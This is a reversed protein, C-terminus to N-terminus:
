NIEVFLNYESFLYLNCKLSLFCLKGIFLYFLINTACLTCVNFICQEILCIYEFM